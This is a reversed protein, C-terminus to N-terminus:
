TNSANSANSTANTANGNMLRQVMERLDAGIGDLKKGLVKYHGALPCSEACSGWMSKDPATYCWGFTGFDTGDDMICHSINEFIDGAPLAQKKPTSARSSRLWQMM